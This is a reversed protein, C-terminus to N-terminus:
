ARNKERKNYSRQDKTFKGEGMRGGYLRWLGLEKETYKKKVKRVDGIVPQAWDGRQRKKNKKKEL